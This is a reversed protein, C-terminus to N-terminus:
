NAVLRYGLDNARKQLSRVSRAKFQEEYAAQGIDKFGKRDKVMTYFIKALKHATATIAKPAGLRSRMRRFYAGLATKSHHLSNAAMRLMQAAKNASPKTKSSLVKGGSIKNGPCLGLWSAFHKSSPWKSMDSGTEALIRMVGNVELGPIETLDVHLIQSLPIEAKFCYPTKNYITKRARPKTREKICIDSKQEEQPLDNQEKSKWRNLIEEIAKECELAQCHFFDYGDIAHKLSLLHEARYNGELAKVIEDEERKLRCSRYKALKYPDNEGSVIARIISIGSAGTIDRVVQHLRLNMQVLAKHMLQVQQSALEFLRTRQRVYGRFTVGMDDPRFSGRLLGYAHLQQIWQCDKVDTKRGPVTKLYYANVLTVDLKAQSLLDYVPIWYVGTSEMAVQKIKNKVLWSVMDKLDRTFTLYERVEQRGDKFGICVFISRAGIDIGAVCPNLAKLNFSNPVQTKRKNKIITAM